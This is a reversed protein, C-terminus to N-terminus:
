KAFNKINTKNLVNLLLLSLILYETFHMIKRLPLNLNNVITQKEKETPTINCLFEQTTLGRKFQRKFYGFIVLSRSELITKPRFVGYIIPALIVYGAFFFGLIVTYDIKDNTVNNYYAPCFIVALLIVLYLVTTAIYHM